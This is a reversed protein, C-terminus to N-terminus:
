SVIWGTSYIVLQALTIGLFSECSELVLSIRHIMWQIMLLIKEGWFQQCLIITWKFNKWSIPSWWWWWSWWWRWYWLWWINLKFVQWSLPSEHPSNHQELNSESRRRILFFFNRPKLTYSSTFLLLSFRLNLTFYTTFSWIQHM